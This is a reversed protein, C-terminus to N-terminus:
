FERHKRSIRAPTRRGRQEDFRPRRHDGDNNSKSMQQDDDSGFARESALGDLGGGATQGRYSKQPRGPEHMWEGKRGAAPVDRDRRQVGYGGGYEERERDRADFAGGAGRGRRSAREEANGYNPAHRGRTGEGVAGRDLWQAAEEDRLRAARSRKPRSRSDDHTGYQDHRPM